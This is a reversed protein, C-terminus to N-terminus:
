FFVSCIYTVDRYLTEFFPQKSTLINKIAHVTDLLCDYFCSHLLYLVPFDSFINVVAEFKCAGFANLGVIWCDGLEVHERLEFSGDFLM